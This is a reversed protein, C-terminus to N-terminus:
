EDIIIDFFDKCRTCGLLKCIIISKKGKINISLGRIRPDLLNSNLDELSSRKIRIIDGQNIGKKKEPCLEKVPNYEVGSRRYLNNYEERKYDFRYLDITPPIDSLAVRFQHNQGKWSTRIQPHGWNINNVRINLGEQFLQCLGICLDWRSQDPELQIRPVGKGSNQSSAENPLLSCADCVGQIFSLSAIKSEHMKLAFPFHFLCDQSVKDVCFLSTFRSDDNKVKNSTLTIIKKNWSSGSRGTGDALIEFDLDFESKLMSKLHYFDNTFRSLVKEKGEKKRKLKTYKNDSRISEDDPRRFKINLKFSVSDGEVIINGKSYILGLFYASNSTIM